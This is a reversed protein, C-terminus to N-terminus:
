LDFYYTAKVLFNSNPQAKFLRKASAGFQFAGREDEESRDQTWVV